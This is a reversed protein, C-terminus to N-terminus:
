GARRRTAKSFRKLLPSRLDLLRRRIEPENLQWKGRKSRRDDSHLYVVQDRKVGKRTIHITNAKRWGLERLREERSLAAQAQNEAALRNKNICEPCLLVNNPYPGYGSKGAYTTSKCQSCMPRAKWATLCQSCMPWSHVIRPRYDTLSSMTDVQQLTTEVHQPDGM